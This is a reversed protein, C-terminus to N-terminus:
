VYQLYPNHIREFEITTPVGHGPYVVTDEPLSLLRQKVANVLTELNGGPLDCRGINARFLSDGSFLVKADASYFSIGGPTHGPTFLVEFDQTGFKIHEGDQLFRGIPPIEFSYNRRLFRQMDESASLYTQEELLHLEPSVHYNDYVWQCGFIHDFHGHTCLLRVVRLENELIFTGIEDYEEPFLAGCDIIVAEKTEDFLVYTNEEVMNVPFTKIRLM